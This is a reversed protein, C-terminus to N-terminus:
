SLRIAQSRGNNMMWVRGDTCGTRGQSQGREREEGKRERETGDGEREKVIM